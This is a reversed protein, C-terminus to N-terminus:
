KNTQELICIAVRNWSEEEFMEGIGCGEAQIRSAPIKYRKMLADKVSNARANALRINLEEPGDKSAYGKIIVKSGPHNNLYAAIMEINPQQDAGIASSGIRFFVYRVSELNNTVKNVVQVEKPQNQLQEVQQALDAATAALGANEAAQADVVGRLENIQGNLADIEAQNYPQVVEFGNGGFNYSVGATLNLNARRRNYSATTNQPQKGGSMNWLVSPSLSITVYDSVNFNFNLGTKTAFYDYDNGHAIFDHGWGAGLQAEINFPRTYGPYGGFLNFLDVAGFAGIYSNDFATKSPTDSALVSKRIGSTNIGFLGEAGLRFSPTLRKSLELGVMPRLNKFFHSKTFPSTLGGKIGASWNDGFSPTEIAQQASMVSMTGLALAATLIVKKM